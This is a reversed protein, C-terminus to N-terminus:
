RGGRGNLREAAAKSPAEPAEAVASAGAPPEATEAHLERTLRAGVADQDPNFLVDKLDAYAQTLAWWHRATMPLRGAKWGTATRVDADVKRAIVKAPESSFFARLRAQLIQYDGDHRM